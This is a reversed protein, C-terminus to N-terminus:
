EMWALCNETECKGWVHGNYASIALHLKGKCVPCERVEEASQKRYKQKMDKIIPLALMFRESAEKIKAESAAIEEPTPEERKICTVAKPTDPLCPLRMVYGATPEGALEKYCVGAECKENSVGNFHKCKGAKLIIEGETLRPVGCDLIKGCEECWRQGDEEGHDSEAEWKGDPKTWKWPSFHRADTHPSSEWGSRVLCPPTPAAPTKTAEPPICQKGSHPNMRMSM